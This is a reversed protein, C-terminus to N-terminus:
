KLILAIYDKGKTYLNGDEDYLGVTMAQGELKKRVNEDKLYDYTSMDMDFGLLIRDVEAIKVSVPRPVYCESSGTQALPTDMADSIQKLLGDPRNWEDLDLIQADTLGRDLIAITTASKLARLDNIVRTANATNTASGTALMMMGALIAIIMIVILLEVLTFGSRKRVSRM